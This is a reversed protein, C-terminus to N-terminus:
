GLTRQLLSVDLVQLVGILRVYINESPPLFSPYESLVWVHVHLVHLSWVSLGSYMNLCSVSMNLQLWASSRCQMNLLPSELLTCRYTRICFQQASQRVNEPRFVQPFFEDGKPPCYACGVQCMCKFNYIKSMYNSDYFVYKYQRGHFWRSQCFFCTYIWTTKNRKIKQYKTKIPLTYIVYMQQFSVAPIRMKLSLKYFLKYDLSRGYPCCAIGTFLSSRSHHNAPHLLIM